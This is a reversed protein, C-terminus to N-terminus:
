EAQMRIAKKLALDFRQYTSVHRMHTATKIFIATAAPHEANRGGIFGKPRCDGLIIDGEVARYGSDACKAGSEIATVVREAKLGLLGSSHVVINKM